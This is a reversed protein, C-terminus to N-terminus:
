GAILGVALRPLPRQDGIHGVDSGRHGLGLPSRAVLVDQDVAGSGCLECESGTDEVLELDMEDRHEEPLPATKEVVETGLVDLELAGPDELPVTDGMQVVADSPLRRPVKLSATRDGLRISHATPDIRLDGDVPAATTSRKLLARVRVVVEALAFPKTLYDDGGAHFGSLRDTLAERATLFLVPAAVGHARLAQCVDRGDADPLGIDLVLVEPAVASFALAPVAL